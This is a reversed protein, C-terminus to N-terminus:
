RLLLVVTAPILLNDSGFIGAVEAIMAVFPVLLFRLLNDPTLHQPTFIFVGLVILCSVVIFALNGAVSKRQGLFGYSNKAGWKNGVVAAATDAFTLHLIAVVFLWRPAGLLICAIIGFSFFFEGWSLRSVKHQSLRWGSYRLGFVVVLYCVEFILYM